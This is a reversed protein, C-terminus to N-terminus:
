IRYDILFELLKFLINYKRYKQGRRGEVVGGDHASCRAERWSLSCAPSRSGIQGGYSYTPSQHSWILCRHHVPRLRLCAFLEHVPLFSSSRPSTTTPMWVLPSPTAQRCDAVRTSPSKSHSYLRVNKQCTQSCSFHFFLHLAPPFPPPTSPWSTISSFPSSRSSASPLPAPPPKRSAIAAMSRCEYSSLCIKSM